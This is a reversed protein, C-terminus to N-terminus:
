AQYDAPVRSPPNEFFESALSVALGTSTPLKAELV